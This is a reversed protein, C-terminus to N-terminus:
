QEIGELLVTGTGSAYIRDGTNALHKKDPNPLALTNIRYSINSNAHLTYAAAGAFTYVEVPTTPSDIELHALIGHKM